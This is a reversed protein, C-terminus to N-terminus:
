TDAGSTARGEPFYRSYQWIYRVGRGEKLGNLRKVEARAEDLTPLVEKVTVYFSLGEGANPQDGEEDSPQHIDIRVVAYVPVADKTM